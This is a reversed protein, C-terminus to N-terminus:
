LPEPALPPAAASPAVNISVPAVVPVQVAPPPAAAVVPQAARYAEVARGPAAAFATALPSRRPRPAPASDSATVEVVTRRGIGLIGGSRYNRTHLIVADKGLDRNVLALADAMSKARFTRLNVVATRPWGVRPM